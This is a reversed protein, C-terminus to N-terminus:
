SAEVIKLINKTSLKTVAFYKASVEQLSKNHGMVMVTILRANAKKLSARILHEAVRDVGDTILVIDNVGSVYGSKIDNCASVIARTIDTGGSGKVRAIYDLLRLVQSAKPKRGVRTLPYPVSDFFKFFFERHEKVARMYLSLAVAKAWTMKLGDMSGSKDLLVYLSGQGQSLVKQYLLLKKELFRLYFLEDPLALNSPVIREVDRGLEYGAIEGHKFRQKRREVPIAWPKVGALLELIKRVELDRALRLLELGYEEYAMMSVTGPQEGEVLVRLKKIYDLDRALSSVIKEVDMRISKEDGGAQPSEGKEGFGREESLRYYESLFISAAISSMLTDAITKSRIDHILSSSLLSKLIHYHERKELQVKDPSKLIPAPLYLAYFVDIALPLPISLDREAIIRVMRMVKSGRYRVLPDDYNISELLGHSKEHLANRYRSEIM